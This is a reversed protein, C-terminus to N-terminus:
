KNLENIDLILGKEFYSQDYIWFHEKVLEMILKHPAHGSLVSREFHGFDPYNHEIVIENWQETGELESLPHFILVVEDLDEFDYSYNDTLKLEGYLKGNNFGFNNTSIVGVNHVREDPYELDLNFIGKESLKATMEYPLYSCLMELTLQEKM